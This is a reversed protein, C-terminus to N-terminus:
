YGEALQKTARLYDAKTLVKARNVRKGARAELTFTPTLSRFPFVVRYVDESLVMVDGSIKHGSFTLPEGPFLLRGQPLGTIGSEELRKQWYRRFPSNNIDEDTLTDNPFPDVSPPTATAGSVGAAADTATPPVDSGGTMDVPTEDVIAGDADVVSGGDTGDSNPETAEGNIEVVAENGDPDSTTPADTVEAVAPDTVKAQPLSRKAGVPAARRASTRAM